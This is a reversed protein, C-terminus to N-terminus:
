LPTFVCLFEAISVGESGVLGIAPGILPIADVLLLPVKTADFFVATGVIMFASLQGITVKKVPASAM